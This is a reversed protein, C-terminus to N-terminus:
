RCSCFHFLERSSWPIAIERAEDVMEHAKRLSEWTTVYQASPCLRNSSPEFAEDFLVMRTNDHTTWINVNRTELSSEQRSVRSRRNFLTRYRCELVCHVSLSHGSITLPCNDLRRIVLRRSATLSCIPRFSPRTAQLSRVWVMGCAPARPRTELLTESVFPGIPHPPNSPFSCLSTSPFCFRDLDRAAM